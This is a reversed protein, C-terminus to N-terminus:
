TGHLMHWSLGVGGGVGGDSILSRSTKGHVTHGSMGVCDGGNGSASSSLGCTKKECLVGAGLMALPVPGGVNDLLDM